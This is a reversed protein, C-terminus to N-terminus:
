LLVTQQVNGGGRGSAINASTESVSKGSRVKECYITICTLYHVSQTNLM